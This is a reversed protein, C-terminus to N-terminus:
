SAVIHFRVIRSAIISVIIILGVFAVCPSVGHMGTKSPYVM